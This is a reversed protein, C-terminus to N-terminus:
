KGVRREESRMAAQGALVALAEAVHDERAAAGRIHGLEIACEASAIRADFRQELLAAELRRRRVGARRSGRRSLLLTGCCNGRPDSGPSKFDLRRTRKKWWPENDLPSNQNGRM